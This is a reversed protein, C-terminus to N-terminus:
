PLFTVLKERRPRPCRASPPFPSLQLDHLHLVVGCQSFHSFHERCSPAGFSPTPTFRRLGSAPSGRTGVWALAGPMPGAVASPDLGLLTRAMRVLWALSLRSPHLCSFRQQPRTVCLRRVITSAVINPDPFPSRVKGACSVWVGRYLLCGGGDCRKPASRP